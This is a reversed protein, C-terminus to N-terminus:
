QSTAHLTSRCAQSIQEMWERALTLFLDTLEKFNYVETECALM